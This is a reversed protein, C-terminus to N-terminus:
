RDGEGALRIDSVWPIEFRGARVAIRIRDRGPEARSYLRGGVKLEEEANGRWSEVVLYYSTGKGSVSYKHVVPAEVVQPQAEDWAGNLLGLGGIGLLPLGTLAIGVAVSWEVHSNARGRLLPVSLLAFLPVLPLSWALATLWLDLWDLPVYRVATIVLAVSGAVLAGGSIGFAVIRGPWPSGLPSLAPGQAELSDALPALGEAAERVTEPDASEWDTFPRWVARLEGKGSELHTFGQDFLRRIAARVREDALWRRAFPRDDFALYVARDFDPDGSQPEVALGIAKFLRDFAGERRLALQRPTACPISVTLSPPQNKAGPFLEFRYRRGGVEGEGSGEGIVRGAGALREAAARQRKRQNFVLLLVSLTVVLLLAIVASLIWVMEREAM